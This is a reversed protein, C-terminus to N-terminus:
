PTPEQNTTTENGTETIEPDEPLAEARRRARLAASGLVVANYGYHTIASDAAHGSTGRVRNMARENDAADRELEAALALLADRGGRQYATRVPMPPARRPIPHYYYYADSLRRILDRTEARAEPDRYYLDALTLLEELSVRDGADPHGNQHAAAMALVDVLHLIDAHSITLDPTFPSDTM